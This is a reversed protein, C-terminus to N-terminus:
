RWPAIRGRGTLEAFAAALLDPDHVEALRGPTAVPRLILEAGLETACVQALKGPDVVSHPDAVVADAAIGRIQEALTSVYREATYGTTEGLQPVLNLVVVRKAPSERVSAALEPVLLPAIVSTFWSGPGLVIVDAECVAELAEPCAPPDAPSVSVDLVEGETKAVAVQGHVQAVAEPEAPDLGKVDAVIEL